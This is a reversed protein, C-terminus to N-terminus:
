LEPCDLIGRTHPTTEHKPDLDRSWIFFLRVNFGCNLVQCGIGGATSNLEFGDLPGALEVSEREVSYGQYADKAAANVVLTLLLNSISRKRHSLRWQVVGFFM